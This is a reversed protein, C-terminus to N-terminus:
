QSHVAHLTPHPSDREWFMSCVRDMDREDRCGMACAQSADAPIHFRRQLRIMAQQYRCGDRFLCRTSKM